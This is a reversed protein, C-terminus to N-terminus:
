QELRAVLDLATKGYWVAAAGVKRWPALERLEVSRDAHNAVTPLEV